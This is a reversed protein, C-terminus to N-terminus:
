IDWKKSYLVVSLKQVDEPTDLDIAGNEFPISLVAEHHRHILKKAGIDGQLNMIESFLTKDFLAPVGLIGSYESAVILTNKSRYKAVLQHIINTSVFPQDCLMLIVGDLHPTIKQLQKIGCQISIAMGESWKKNFAIHIKFDSLYPEITERYAGLVVVIPQCNSNIAVEAIHQILPKDLYPLLQKPKGLRKSGGAALIIIGIDGM